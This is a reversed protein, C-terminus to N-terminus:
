NNLFVSLRYTTHQWTGGTGKHALAVVEPYQEATRDLMAPVSMPRLAAMGEEETRLKVRGHPLVTHLKDAPLVQNPSPAIRISSDYECSNFVAAQVRCDFESEKDKYAMARVSLWVPKSSVVLLSPHSKIHILSFSDQRGTPFVFGVVLVDRSTQIDGVGTLCIELVVPTRTRPLGGIRAQDLVVHEDAHKLFSRQFGGVLTFMGGKWGQKVPYSLGGNIIVSQEAHPTLDEAPSDATVRYSLAEVTHPKAALERMAEVKSRTVVLFDKVSVSSFRLYVHVGVLLSRARPSVETVHNTVRRERKGTWFRPEFGQPRRKRPDECKLGELALIGQRVKYTDETTEM